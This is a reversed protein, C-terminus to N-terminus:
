AQRPLAELLLEPDLAHVTNGDRGTM